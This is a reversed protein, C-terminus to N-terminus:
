TNVQQKREWEVLGDKIIKRGEDIMDKRDLVAEGPSRALGRFDWKEISGEPLKPVAGKSASWQRMNTYHLFAELMGNSEGGWTKAVHKSIYDCVENVPSKNVWTGINHDGTVMGYKKWLENIDKQPFLYDKYTEYQKTKRNYKKQEIKGAVGPGYLGIHTHLLGSETLELARLYVSVKKKGARRLRTNMFDMFKELQCKWAEGVEALSSFKKPDTTLTIQLGFRTGGKQMKKSFESMRWATEKRYNKSFRTQCQVIIGKKDEANHNQLGIYCAEMADQWNDCDELLQPWEDAFFAKTKELHDGFLHKKGFGNKLSQKTIPANNSNQRLQENSDILPLSKGNDKAETTVSDNFRKGTDESEQWSKLWSETDKSYELSM